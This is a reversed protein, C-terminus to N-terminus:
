PWLRTPGSRYAARFGTHELSQTIALAPLLAADLESALHRAFYAVKITDTALPLHPGHQEFAGVPLVAVPPKASRWATTPCNGDLVPKSEM